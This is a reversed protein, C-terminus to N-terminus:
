AGWLGWEIGWERPFALADTFCAKINHCGRALMGKPAEEMPGPVRIGGGPGMAGVMYDTKVAKSVAVQGLLAGTFKRLSADDGDLEQIEQITKQAPPKYVLSHEGEESDAAPQALQEATPDQKAM